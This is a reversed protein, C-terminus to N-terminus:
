RRDVLALRLAEVRARKTADSSISPCEVGGVGDGANANAANRLLCVHRIILSARGIMVNSRGRHVYVVIDSCLWTDIGLGRLRARSSVM